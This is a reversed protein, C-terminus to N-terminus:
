NIQAQTFELYDQVSDGLRNLIIVVLFIALGPMLAQWPSTMLVKRGESMMFGWEPYPPKSSLGLFALSSLEMMTGSLSLMISVIMMKSINPIIHHLIIYVSNCGCLQAAMIYNSEKLKLVLSRALRADAMWGIVILALAANKTGAGLIGAVAIAMVQGPFSQFILLIKQIISDLLGGFYGAVVGVTTGIIGTIAVVMFTAALSTRAGTLIRSFLDRGLADTGMIYEKCPAMDIAYLDNKYPDYPAIKEGFLMIFVLFMTCVFYFTLRIQHKRLQNM